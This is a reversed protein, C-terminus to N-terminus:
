LDSLDVPDVGVSKHEEATEEDKVASRLTSSPINLNSWYVPEAKRLKIEIKMPTMFATSEEPLIIGALIWTENFVSHEEPFFLEVNLKIGHAQVRSKTPDFKKGGGYIVVHVFSGDQHWDHRCKMAKPGGDESAEKPKVWVHSGTQCGEQKMFVDFDTTKKKQCCSWYKLGEHFIPVGPHFKCTEADTQPGAYIKSCGKNVCKTVGVKIESLTPDDATGNGAQLEYTQKKLSDSLTPQISVMYWPHTLPLGQNQYM